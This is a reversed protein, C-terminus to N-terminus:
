VSHRTTRGSAVRLWLVSTKRTPRPRLLTALGAAVQGGEAVARRRRARSPGPAPRPVRPPVSRSVAAAACTQAPIYTRTRLSERRERTTPAANCHTTERKARSRLTMRAVLRARKDRRDFLAAHHQTRTGMTRRPRPRARTRLSGFRRSADRASRGHADLGNSSARGLGCVGLLTTASAAARPRSTQLDQLYSQAARVRASRKLLGRRM